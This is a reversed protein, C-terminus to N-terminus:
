AKKGFVNRLVHRSQFILAGLLISGGLLTQSTVLLFGGETLYPVLKLLEKPQVLLVQMIFNLLKTLFWIDGPLSGLFKQMAPM